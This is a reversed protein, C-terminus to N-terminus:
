AYGPPPEFGGFHQEILRGVEISTRDELHPGVIQVGLPLGNSHREIPVVTSPLFAVGSFGAWFLQHCTNEAKGNIQIVRDVREGKHDHPWAPGAGVPCLLVDWQKFFEHWRWRFSQRAENLSLWDRYTLSASRCVMAKYSYDDQAYAKGREKWRAM